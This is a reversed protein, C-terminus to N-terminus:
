QGAWDSLAYTTTAQAVLKGSAEESIRVDATFLRRGARLTTAEALLPLTMAPRLFNIAMDVTVAAPDRKVALILAYTAVDALAFQVPGAVSGGPRRVPAGENLRLLGREPSAEVVELNFLPVLPLGEEIHRRVHELTWDTPHAM